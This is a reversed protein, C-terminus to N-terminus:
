NTHTHSSRLERKFAYDIPIDRASFAHDHILVRDRTSRKLQSTKTTLILEVFLLISLLQFHGCDVISFNAVHAVDPVRRAFVFVFFIWADAAICHHQVRAGLVFVLRELTVEAHLLRYALFHHPIQTFNAVGAVTVFRCRRLLRHTEELLNTRILRRRGVDVLRTEPFSQGLAPIM